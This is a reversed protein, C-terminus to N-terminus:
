TWTAGTSGPVTATILIIKGSSVSWPFVVAEANLPTGDHFKVGERLYFTYTLADDSVDWRVALAPVIETTGTKFEVLTDFVQHTAYFTEGDTERAPDLSVSDGSRAFVLIGGGGAAPEGSMSRSEEDAGGAFATGAILILGLVLFFWNKM